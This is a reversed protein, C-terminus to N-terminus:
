WHRGENQCPTMIYEKFQRKGKIHVYNAALDRGELKFVQMLQAANIAGGENALSRLTRLKAREIVSAITPTKVEEQIQHNKKFVGIGGYDPNNSYFSRATVSGAITRLMKNQEKQIEDVDAGTLPYSQLGYTM